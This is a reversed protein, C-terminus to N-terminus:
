KPLLVSQAKPLVKAELVDFYGLPNGDVTMGIKDNPATEIVLGERMKERMLGRGESM